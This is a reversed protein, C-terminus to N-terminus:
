SASRNGTWTPLCRRRTPATCCDLPPPALGLRQAPSSPPAVPWDSSKHPPAPTTVHTTKRRFSARPPVSLNAARTGRVVHADARGLRRDPGRGRAGLARALRRERRGNPLARFAPAHLERAVRRRQAPLRRGAREAGGRGRRRDDRRQRSAPRDRPGRRRSVLGARLAVPRPGPHHRDPM